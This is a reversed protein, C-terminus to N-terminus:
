ESAHNEYASDDMIRKAGIYREAYYSEGLRNTVVGRSTSAHAFQDDGIYIGVHSVGQGSTNFFILDGPRLDERSVATGMEFQSGSQHPLKMGMASFIYMTFGSCDFGSTTMGGYSYRTGLVKDIEQDLKSDAFASGLGATFLMSLGLVTASFKKLM